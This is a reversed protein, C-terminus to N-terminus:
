DSNNSKRLAENLKEKLFNVENKLECILDLYAKREKEYSDIIITTVNVYGTATESINVYNNTTITDPEFSLIQEKTLELINAIAIITNEPITKQRNEIYSYQEQSVGMKKAVYEQSYGKRERLKKIKHGLNYEM